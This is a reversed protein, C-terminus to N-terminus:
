LGRVQKQALWVQMPDEVKASLVRTTPKPAEDEWREARLWSAPYPVFQGDDKTWAPQQCQWALATLIRDVTLADPRIQAWARRAEKKAVRKPYAAWFRAFNADNEPVLQYQDRKGM